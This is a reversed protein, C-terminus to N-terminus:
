DYAMQEGRGKPDLRKHLMTAISKYIKDLENHHLFGQLTAKEQKNLYVSASKIATRANDKDCHNAMGLAMKRSKM